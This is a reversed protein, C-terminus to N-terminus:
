KDKVYCNVIDSGNAGYNTRIVPYSFDFETWENASTLALRQSAIQIGQYESAIEKSEEPFIIDWNTVLPTDSIGQLVFVAPDGQPVEGPTHGRATRKLGRPIQAGTPPYSLMRIIALPEPTAGSEGYGSCNLWPECICFAQVTVDM